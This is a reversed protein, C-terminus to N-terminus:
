KKQSNFMLISCILPIFTSTGPFVKIRDLKVPLFESLIKRGPIQISMACLIAVFFSLLCMIDFYWLLEPILIMCFHKSMIINVNISYRKFMDVVHLMDIESILVYTQFGILCKIGSDFKNQCRLPLIAM